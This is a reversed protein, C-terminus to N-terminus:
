ISSLFIGNDGGGQHGPPPPTVPRDRSLRGIRWRMTASVRLSEMFNRSMAAAAEAMANLAQPPESSLLAGTAAVGFFMTNKRPSPIPRVVWVAARM